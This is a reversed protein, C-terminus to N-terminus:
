VVMQHKKTKWRQHVWLWQDPYRRVVDEIIETFNQTNILADKEPDGTDIIEVEEEIVFRYKGSETRIMFAPIVPAGTHLALTALGDTTCAPRGFFDVFVGEEWAMNQDLLTGVIENKRILRLVQRMSRDKPLPNSGKCTRVYTILNELIPSDLPRYIFTPPQGLLAFSAVMLEWNGFHATFLFMGKKKAATRTYNEIGEFEVLDRINERTLSPIQFFEAAVIGLNRYAGKAIKILDYISKEPYACKLNHLTILRHKSSLHYFLLSIAQFIERRVALPIFGFIALIAKTTATKKM